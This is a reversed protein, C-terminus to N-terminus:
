KLNKLNNFIDKVRLNKDSLRKNSIINNNKMLIENDVTNRNNLEIFKGNYTFLLTNAVLNDNLFDDINVLKEELIKNLFAVCTSKDPLFDPLDNSYVIGYGYNAETYDIKTFYTKEFVRPIFDGSLVKKMFDNSLIIETHVRLEPFVGHLWLMSNKWFSEDKKNKFRYKTDYSTCLLLKNLFGKEKAYNLFEYLDKKDRYILSSALYIKNAGKCLDFLQYFLKKITPDNLQGDFFEGGIFGIEDYSREKLDNLVCNLSYRKDVDKLQRNYCFACHNNCDKWLEYQLFNNSM